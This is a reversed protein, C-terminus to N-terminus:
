KVFLEGTMTKYYERDNNKSDLFLDCGLECGAHLITFRKGESNFKSLNCIAHMNQM